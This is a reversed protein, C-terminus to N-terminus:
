ILSIGLIVSAKWVVLIIYQSFNKDSILMTHVSDPLTAYSVSSSNSVKRSACGKVTRIDLFIESFDSNGYLSIIINLVMYYLTYIYSILCYVSSIAYTGQTELDM